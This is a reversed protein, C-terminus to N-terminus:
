RYHRLEEPQHEHSFVLNVSRMLSSLYIFFVQLGRCDRMKELMRCNEYGINEGFVLGKQSVIEHVLSLNRDVLAKTLRVSNDLLEFLKSYVPDTESHTSWNCYYRLAKTVEEGRYIKRQQIHDLLMETLLNLGAHRASVLEVLNTAAELYNNTSIIYKQSTTVMLTMFLDEPLYKQLTAWPVDSYLKNTAIMSSAEEVLRSSPIMLIYYVYEERGEGALELAYSTAYETLRQELIPKNNMLSPYRHLVILLHMLDDKDLMENERSRALSDYDLLYAGFYVLERELRNFTYYEVMHAKIEDYESSDTAYYIGTNRLLIWVCDLSAPNSLVDSSYKREGGLAYLLQDRFVDQLKNKESGDIRVKHPQKRKISNFNIEIDRVLGTDYIKQLLDTAEKLKGARFYLFIKGWISGHEAHFQYEGNGEFKNLYKQQLYFTLAHRNLPLDESFEEEVVKLSNILLETMLQLKGLEFDVGKM